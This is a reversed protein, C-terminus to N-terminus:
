FKHRIQYQGFLVFLLQEYMKQRTVNGNTLLSIAGGNQHISKDQYMRVIESLQFHGGSSVSEYGNKDVLVGWNCVYWRGDIETIGGELGIGIDSNMTELVNRARNRAGQITEVDSRPQKSVGSPVSQAVVSFGFKEAVTQLANVKAANTSGIAVIM